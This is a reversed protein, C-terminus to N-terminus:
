ESYVMFLAFIHSYNIYVTFFKAKVGGDAKCRVGQLFVTMAFGTVSTVPQPLGNEQHPPRGERVGAGGM